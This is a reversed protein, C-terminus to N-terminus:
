DLQAPPVFHFDTITMVSLWGFNLAFTVEYTL